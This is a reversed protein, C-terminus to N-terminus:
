AWVVDLDWAWELVEALSFLHHSRGTLASRVQGWLGRNRARSYMNKNACNAYNTSSSM